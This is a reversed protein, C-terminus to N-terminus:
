LVGRVPVRQISGRWRQQCRQNKCTQFGAIGKPARNADETFACGNDYDPRGNKSPIANSIRRVSEQDKDDFLTVVHVSKSGENTKFSVTFEVGPLVKRLHRAGDVKHRLADYVGYDFADHDTIAAM